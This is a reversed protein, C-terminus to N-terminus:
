GKQRPQKHRERHGKRPDSAARACIPREEYLDISVTKGRHDIVELVPPQSEPDTMIGHTQRAAEAPGAANVDIVYVVRFLPEDGHDEHPPEIALGKAPPLGEGTNLRECLGGVEQFDLPLLTGADTAIDDIAADPNKRGDQLNEDQHFRLAALITAFERRNVCLHIPSATVSPSERSPGTKRHHGELQLELADLSDQISEGVGFTVPAATQLDLPGQYAWAEFPGHKSPDGENHTLIAFGDEKLFRCLRPLAPRAQATMKGHQVGWTYAEECPVCLTRKQDSPKNVSVPVVKAGPSDCYQNECFDKM